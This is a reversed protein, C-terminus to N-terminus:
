QGAEEETPVVRVVALESMVSSVFASLIDADIAEDLMNAAVANKVGRRVADEVFARHRAAQEQSLRRFAAAQEATEFIRKRPKM